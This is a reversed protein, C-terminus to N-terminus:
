DLLCFLRECLPWKHEFLRSLFSKIGKFLEQAM